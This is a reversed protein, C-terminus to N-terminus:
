GVKIKCRYIDKKSFAHGADSLIHFISQNKDFCLIQCSFPLHKIVSYFRKLWCIIGGSTIQNSPVKGSPYPASTLSSCLVSCKNLYSSLHWNFNLLNLRWKNLCFGKELFQSTIRFCVLEKLIFENLDKLTNQNMKGLPPIRSTWIPWLHFFGTSLFDKSFIHLLSSLLLITKTVYWYFRNSFVHELYLIWVCFQSIM